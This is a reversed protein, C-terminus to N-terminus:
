QDDDGSLNARHRRISKCAEALQEEAATLMEYVDHQARLRLESAEVKADNKLIRAEERAQQVIESEEVMRDARAQADDLIAQADSEAEVVRKRAEDKAQEVAKRTRMDVEVRRAEVTDQLEQLIRDRESYMQWGYQVADPLNAEMDDLIELCVDADIIRKKKSFPLSTGAEVVTRLHKLLELFFTLDNMERGNEAEGGEQEQVSEEQPELAEQEYFVDQDNAM